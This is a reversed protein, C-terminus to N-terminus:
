KNDINLKATRTYYNEKDQHHIYAGNNTQTKLSGVNTKRCSMYIEDEEILNKAEKLVLSLGKTAYGKGRYDPHIGFGIHGASDRLIDNLYHRVKFLGVIKDKNWLFFYTDPVHGVPINIKNSHDLLAQSEKNAFENYSIGHYKNIFGKEDFPIEQLYQYEKKLSDINFKKIYLM